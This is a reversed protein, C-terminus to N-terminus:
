ISTIFMFLIVLIYSRIPNKYKKLRNNADLYRVLLISYIILIFAIVSTIVLNEIRVQFEISAYFFSFGFLLHAISFMIMGLLFNNEIKIDGLICFLFAFILVLHLLPQIFNSLVIYITALAPPIIKLMLVINANYKFDSHWKTLIEESLFSKVLIYPGSFM